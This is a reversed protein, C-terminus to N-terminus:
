GADDGVGRVQEGVEITSHTESSKVIRGALINEVGVFRAVFVNVPRYYIEQASGSQVTTGGRLVIIRDALLMADEHDHTVFIAPISLRELFSALEERLQDRTHADLASFPEDLLFLDPEAALARALAIRQKEGASM